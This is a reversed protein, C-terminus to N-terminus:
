AAAMHQPDVALLPEEVLLAAAAEEAPAAAEEAAADAAPEPAAAEAEAEAEAEAAEAVAVEAAAEAAVEAAAEPVAAPAADAPVPEPQGAITTYAPYRSKFGMAKALPVLVFRAWGFLPEPIEALHIQNDVFLLFM